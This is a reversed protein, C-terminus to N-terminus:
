TSRQRAVAFGYGPFHVDDFLQLAEIYRSRQADHLCIISNPKAHKFIQILCETRRRGDVFFVDAERICPPCTYEDTEVPCLHTQVESKGGRYVYSDQHEVSVIRKAGAHLAMDTNPGPGWEVVIEPRHEELVEKYYPIYSHSGGACGCFRRKCRCANNRDQVVRQRRLQPFCGALVIHEMCEIRGALRRKIRPRRAWHVIKAQKSPPSRRRLRSAFYCYNYIPSLDSFEFKKKTQLYAYRFSIQDRPVDPWFSEIRRWWWDWQTALYIMMARAGCIVGSNWERYALPGDVFEPLGEAIAIRNLEQLQASHRHLYSRHIFDELMAGTQLEVGTPDVFLTDADLYVIRDAWAPADLIGRIKQYKCDMSETRSPTLVKVDIGFREGSQQLKTANLQHLKGGAVTFYYTSNSDGM